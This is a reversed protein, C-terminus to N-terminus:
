STLNTKNAYMQLDAHHLLTEPTIGDEPYVAVGQSLSPTLRQNEVTISESVADHIRDALSQIDDNGISQFLIVFEDGGLRALADYGRLHHKIRSSIHILLQDGVSHGYTDNITKFNNLDIYVLALKSQQRQALSIASELHQFFARRNLLGTLEDHSAQHKLKESLKELQLAKDQLQRSLSHLARGTLLALLLAMVIIAAGLSLSLVKSKAAVQHARKAAQQMGEREYRRLAEIREDFRRDLEFLQNSVIKHASQVEDIALLEVVKDQLAVIQPILVDQEAMMRLEAEDGLHARLERRIAGVRNGWIDYQQRIEDREFPDSTLLQNILSQHRNYAAELLDTSLQIRLARDNTIHELEQLMRQNQWLGNGIVVLLSTILLIVVILLRTGTRIVAHILFQSLQM